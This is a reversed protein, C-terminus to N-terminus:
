EELILRGNELKWKARGEMARIVGALYAADQSSGAKQLYKKADTLRRMKVSASAANLNAVPDGPFQRAATLIADYWGDTGEGFSEAVSYIESQSLAEPHTYILQKAEALPYHQVVYEIIYDTHRLGPFVYDLLWKYPTGGAVAKIQREKEDPDAASDIIRLLADRQEAVFEPMVPTEVVTEHEYWINGKVRRSEGRSEIFTRLNLWDEPTFTEEVIGAPIDFNCCVYDKLAKTRGRALRTNNDYPSEPSAYGHLSVSQVKFSKDFLANEITKKLRQLEEPNRRYDPYIITENVPFDLFARGEITRVKTDEQKPMIYPLFPITRLRNDLTVGTATPAPQKKTRPGLVYTVGLKLNMRTDLPAGAKVGNFHDGFLNYTMEAGLRLRKSLKYSLGFGARGALEFHSKTSFPDTYSLYIDTPYGFAYSTGIGALLKFNFRRGRKEPKAFADTLDFTLDGFLSISNWGWTDSSECLPVNRSKNRNYRLAVRWGWLPHFEQGIGAFAGGAWPYTTHETIPLHENGSKNVGAYLQLYLSDRGKGKGGDARASQSGAALLAFVLCVIRMFHLNSNM